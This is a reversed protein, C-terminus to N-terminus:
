GEGMNNIRSSRVATSQRTSCISHMNSVFPTESRTHRATRWRMAGVGAALILAAILVLGSRSMGGGRQNAPPTNSEPAAQGGGAAQATFHFTGTVPHGDASTVRWTVTYDGAPAGAALPQRASNDTVIPSGAQVPGSPGTVVVQAGMAIASEDFVLLVAEPTRPVKEGDGPTSSRLTNHASAPGAAWVLLAIAALMPCLLRCILWRMADRKPAAGNM